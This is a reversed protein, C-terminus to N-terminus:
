LLVLLLQRPHRLHPLLELGVDLTQRVQGEEGVHRSAQGGQGGGTVEEGGVSGLPEEARVGGWGGARGLRVRSWSWSWGWGRGELGRGTKSSVMWFGHVLWFLVTNSM